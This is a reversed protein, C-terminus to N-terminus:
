ILIGFTDEQRSLDRQVITWCSLHWAQFQCSFFNVSYLLKKQIYISIFNESTTIAMSAISLLYTGIGPLLCITRIKCLFFESFVAFTSVARRKSDTCLYCMNHSFPVFISTEKQLFLLIWVSISFHMSQRAVFMCRWFRAKKLYRVEGSEIDTPFWLIGATQWLWILM